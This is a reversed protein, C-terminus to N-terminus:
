PRVARNYVRVDDILGSFFSGPALHKGAGFMLGGDSSALDDQTDTAVEEGDVYLRRNTGDWIMAIRHWQGDTIVAESFLPKSIRGACETALTGDAPNISLWDGGGQQSVLVQGPQGGKVWALISFPGEASRVALDTVVFASVGDLELAGDVMGGEPLWTVTGVVTGDNEGASDPAVAGESEDLRWHAIIRPDDVSVVDGLINCDVILPEYGEWFEIADRTNGEVVCHIITPSADHCSIGTTGGVITLGALVTPGGAASSLAVVPAWGAGVITTAAVINPDNPDTSRLTLSKGKFDLNGLYQCVGAGVVIEDDELADNIAQQVSAYRQGTSANEIAQAAVNETHILLPDAHITSGHQDYVRVTWWTHECPFTTVHGSPPIATDSYLYTLHYRDQGFLLQYGVANQSAECSLVAGQDDVVAGNEPGVLTVPEPLRGPSASPDYLEMHGAEADGYWKFKYIEREPACALQLNRGPGLAAWLRGAVVGDNFVSADPNTASAVYWGWAMTHRQSEPISTDTAKDFMVSLVGPHSVQSSSVYSEAWCQDGDVRSQLFARISDSYDDYDRCFPTADFFRVRNVAYRADRYVANMRIGIDIAPQGGTSWGATQILQEYDPAVRSLYVILMDGYHFYTRPGDSTDPEYGYPFNVFNMKSFMNPANIYQGSYGIVCDGGGFYVNTPNNADFFPNELRLTTAGFSPVVVVKVRDPRSTLEGDSVLLEFECRQIADTQIFGGVTPTATAADSVDVMPGSVQTWTYTLPGSDDPDYSNSGDLQVPAVAAYRPLGANAVPPENACADRGRGAVTLLVVMLVTLHERRTKM